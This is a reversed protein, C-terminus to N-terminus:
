ENKLEVLSKVLDTITDLYDSYAGTSSNTVDESSTGSEGGSTDESDDATAATNSTSISSGTTVESDPDESADTEQSLQPEGIQITADKSHIVLQREWTEFGDAIVM